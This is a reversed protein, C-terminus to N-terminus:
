RGAARDGRGRGRRGAGRGRGVPQRPDAGAEQEELLGTVPVVRVLPAQHFEAKSNMVCDATSMEIRVAENVQRVLCSKFVNTQKMSFEAKVGGHEVLCHKWLANDEDELRLAAAHQKGRTYCNCGTEGDYWSLRGARRCTECLIKYGVGNKECKGPRSTLCPFCDDRGCGPIKLPESKALHKLANGAREQVAVRMETVEEFKRCVDKLEEALSGATPDIILPASVQGEKSQHWNQRKKEKAQRREKEKWERPRHVPRVGADEEECMKDWRELATKIVQHRVTTPYGSRRLKRSWKEMVVRSRAWDLGRSTNRLRRVGEEVLVAMKMKKSHASTYPIVFKSACPKEYHDHVVQGDEVSVGLDLVPVRKDQNLSPCDVTFQVCETIDNAITKLLNMTRLDEEIGEDEEVLEEIKVLREGDYRVGPEVAAMVETEDDVYRAFDESELGLAALKEVYKRDHRKMLVKGLRETLKNGIAGGRRQKRIKNDYSYFHNQMVLKCAAQILCGVMKMKEGRDPARIPPLWSRDAQRGAPGATVAKCTLGPRAGARFRRRHVVDKLGEEDIEQQTMSCALFLAVEVTDVEVELDSEEVELRAEEADEVDMEPYFSKVDKSGVVLGGDKQYPGKSLGEAKIKENVRTLRSSLEETCRVETRSAKDAEEVFPNLLECLLDALPGNPSQQVQAKCVPRTKLEEKHDKVYQSLSPIENNKANCASKFREQHSWDEGVKFARLIQTAAGNFQREAEVVEERTHETDGEIHPQMCDKYLTPSMVALKGSKDSALLVLEGAKERELIRQKGRRAAESMTSLSDPGGAKLCEAEKKQNRRVADELNNVLVQIKAEKSAEAANPVTIRKCTAMDTVRKKRFDVKGEEQDYVRKSALIAEEEQEDLGQAAGEEQEQLSMRLKAATVQISTKLKETDIKAYDTASKPLRM